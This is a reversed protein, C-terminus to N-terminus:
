RALHAAEFLVRQTHFNEVAILFALSAFVADRSYSTEPLIGAPRAGGRGGVSCAAVIPAVAAAVAAAKAVHKLVDRRTMPDSSNM